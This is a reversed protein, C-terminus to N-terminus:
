KHEIIFNGIRSQLTISESAGTNMLQECGAVAEQLLILATLNYKIGMKKALDKFVRGAYPVYQATKTVDGILYDLLFKSKQMLVRANDTKRIITIAGVLDLKVSAAVLSAAAKDVDVAASEVYAAMAGEASFDAGGAVAFLMTELHSIANRMSGDSLRSITNMAAKVEKTVKYGESKAIVALRTAIDEPTIPRLEIRTCRNAMTARLKQPETTCLIWITSPSPEELPILLAEASAGTLMHAEDIIIVRFNTHPATSSGRILTRVDDVKGHEGANITIVDPHRSGLKYSDSETVDKKNSNMYTALIRALTTKGTGTHGSIMIAGPYEQRKVMGKLVAVQQVHGVLDEFLRPRYKVALSQTTSRKVESSKVKKKKVKKEESM